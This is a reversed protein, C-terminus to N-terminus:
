PRPSSGHCESQRTGLNLGLTGAMPPFHLQLLGIMMTHSLVWSVRVTKNYSGSVIHRGDPSFAVSTVYHDHGKHLDMVSQGTQAVTGIM